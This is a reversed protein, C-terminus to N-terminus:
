RCMAMTQGKCTTYHYQSLESDRGAACGRAHKLDFLQSNYPAIILIDDLTVAREEEKRDVWASGARLDDLGDFDRWVQLEWGQTGM